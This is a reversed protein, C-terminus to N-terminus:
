ASRSRRRRVAYIVSRRVSWGLGGRAGRRVAPQVPRTPRCRSCLGSWTPWSLVIAVALSLHEVTAGLRGSEATPSPLGQGRGAPLDGADGAGGAALFLMSAQVNAATRTSTRAARPRPRRRADGRRAGAPHQRHDLRHDLGQGGRPPGRQARVARHDAGARQRLHRQAPRRDRPGVQAALEETAAGHARRDPRDRARRHRLDLAPTAHAIELAIALPIFPTLLVAVGPRQVPVPARGGRDAEATM